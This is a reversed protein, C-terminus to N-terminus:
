AKESRTVYRSILSDVTAGRSLMNDVQEESAIVDYKTLAAILSDRTIAESSDCLEQGVFERLSVPKSRPTRRTVSSDLKLSIVEIDSSDSSQCAM